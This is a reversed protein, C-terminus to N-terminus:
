RTRTDARAADRARNSPVATRRDPALEALRARAADLADEPFYEVRTTVGDQVIGVSIMMNEIAGGDATTATNHVLTVAGHHDPYIAVIM